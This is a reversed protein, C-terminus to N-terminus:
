ISNIRALAVSNMLIHVLTIPVSKKPKQTSSLLIITQVHTSLIPLLSMLVSNKIMITNYTCLNSNTKSLLFFYGM